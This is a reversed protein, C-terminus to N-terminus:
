KVFYSEKPIHKVFPKLSKDNPGINFYITNKWAFFAGDPRCNPLFRKHHTNPSAGAPRYKLASPIQILFFNRGSPAKYFSMGAKKGFQRGL